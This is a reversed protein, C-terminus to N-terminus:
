IFLMEPYYAFGHITTVSKDFGIAIIVHPYLYKIFM